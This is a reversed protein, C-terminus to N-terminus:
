RSSRTRVIQATNSSSCPWKVAEDQASNGVETTAFATAIRRLASILDPMRGTGIIQDLEREQAQAHEMLEGLLNVGTRMVNLSYSRRNGPLRERTILGRRDLEDLIHTLSSKDRSDARSLATQTIGPNESVLALVAFWSPSVDMHDLRRTFALFSASQALRLHFGIMNALLGLRLDEVVPSCTSHSEESKRLRLETM